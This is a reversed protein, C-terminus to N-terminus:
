PDFMQRARRSFARWPHVRFFCSLLCSLLRGRLAKLPARLATPPPHTQWLLLAGWAQRGEESGRARGERPRQEFLSSFCVVGGGGGGGGVEDGEGRGEGGRRSMCKKRGTRRRATRSAPMPRAALLRPPPGMFRTLRTSSPSAAVVVVVVVVPVLAVLFLSVSEHAVSKTRWPALRRMFPSLAPTSM